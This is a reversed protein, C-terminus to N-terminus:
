NRFVSSAVKRGRTVSPTNVGSNAVAVFGMNQALNTDNPTVRNAWSAVFNVSTQAAKAHMSIARESQFDQSVM